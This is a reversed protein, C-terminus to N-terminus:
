GRARLEAIKARLKALIEAKRESPMDDQKEIDAAAKELAALMPEGNATCLVFKVNENRADTGGVSDVEFKEGPCEKARAILEHPEGRKLVNEDGGVHRVIIKKEFKKTEATAKEQAASATAIGGAAIISALALGALRRTKGHNLKLMM